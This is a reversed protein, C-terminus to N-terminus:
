RPTGDQPGATRQKFRSYMYSALLLLAGLAVFATIRYFRTLLWVDYLYLKGAVIGLLVLGLTRAINSERAIGYALIAIGYVALLVSGTESIFSAQDAAAVNHLAWIGALRFSAILVCGHAVVWAWPRSPRSHLAALCFLFFVFTYPHHPDILMAAALISLAAVVPLLVPWGRPVAILIATIELSVLYVFEFVVRTEPQALPLLMPTLLAGIFGLIAIASSSYRVSLVLALACVAVLAIFAIPEGFLKYYASAAYLSIYLTALGCGAIGQSFAQQSRGRLWEAFGILLCGALLGLVVRGSAGIWRNDVAYKFFFIVGIALTAAGIRNIVTLGFRSEAAERSEVPIPQPMSIETSSSRELASVRAQLNAVAAKLRELDSDPPQNPQEM